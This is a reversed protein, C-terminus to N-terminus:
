SDGRWDDAVRLAVVRGEACVEGAVSLACGLIFKRGAQQELWARLDVAPRIPTPRRYRVQLEATVCWIEPASGIPRGELRYAWAIATGVCHCDILTAIIGGNLFGAPGAAHHPQPAFRAVSAEGDWRSKLRLGLVNDPGCGFCGNRPILDQFAKSDM